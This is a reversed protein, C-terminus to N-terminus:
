SQYMTGDWPQQRPKDRYAKSHGPTVSYIKDSANLIEMM